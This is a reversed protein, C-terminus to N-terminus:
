LKLAVTISSSHTHTRVSLRTWSKAVGHVIYGVLSRQGHSKGPLFVPTPQWKRRWPMKGVWPDIRCRKCRRCQCPPNKLWSRWRDPNLDRSQWKRATHGQLLDSADLYLIQRCHLLAPNQCNGASSCSEQRDDARCNGATSHLEQRSLQKIIALQAAHNRM